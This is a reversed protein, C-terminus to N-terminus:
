SHHQSEEVVIYLLLINVEVIEFSETENFPDM